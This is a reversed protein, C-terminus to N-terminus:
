LPTPFRLIMGQPVNPEIPGQSSPLLLEFLRM